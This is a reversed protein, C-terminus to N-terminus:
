KAPSRALWSPDSVCATSSSAGPPTLHFAAANGRSRAGKSGSALPRGPSAFRRPRPLDGALARGEAGQGPGAGREPAPARVLGPAGEQARERLTPSAAVGELERIGNVRHRIYTVAM